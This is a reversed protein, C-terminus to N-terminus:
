PMSTIGTYLLCADDPVPHDVLLERNAATALLQDGPPTRLVCMPPHAQDPSHRSTVKDFGEFTMTESYGWTPMDSRLAALAAEMTCLSALPM